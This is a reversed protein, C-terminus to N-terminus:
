ASARAQHRREAEDARLEVQLRLRYLLNWEDVALSARDIEEQVRELRRRVAAIGHGGRGAELLQDELRQSDEQWTLNAGHFPVERELAARARHVEPAPGIVAVNTAYAYIRLGDAKMFVPSGRVVAGLLHTVAFGVTRLPWAMFGRAEEVRLHDVGMAHLSAAVADKLADDDTGAKMTLSMQSLILKHRLRDVILFPGFLVMQLVGAGLSATAPYSVPVRSLWRAVSADEHIDNWTSLAALLPPTLVLAAGLGLAVWWPVDFNRPVIGLWDLTAGVLLPAGFGALLVVWGAALLSILALAHGQKGPVQGFYLGTAWGLAFAAARGLVQWLVLLVIPLFPM